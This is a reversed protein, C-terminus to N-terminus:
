EFVQEFYPVSPEEYFNGNILYVHQQGVIAEFVDVIFEHDVKPNVKYYDLQELGSPNPELQDIV